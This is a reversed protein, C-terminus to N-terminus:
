HADILVKKHSEKPPPLESISTKGGHDIVGIEYTRSVYPEIMAAIEDTLETDTCLMIVQDGANPLYTGMLAERHLSDLRSLPTDIIMPLERGSTKGLAWLMSIAYLQREGASLETTDIHKGAKSVLRIAFSNPDIDVAKILRKRRVLGNFAEVFYSSLSKLRTQLIKQEYQVLALQTRSALDARNKASDNEFQADRATVRKADLRKVVERLREADANAQALETEVVGMEFEAKKLKDFTKAAAGPRFNKAQEKLLLRKQWLSQLNASLSAAKVRCDSITELQELVWDPDSSLELADDSGATATVFKRLASFHQETWAPNKPAKISVTEQFATVFAGVSKEFHADKARQVESTFKKILKPALAFPASGNVLTRLENQEENLGKEIASIEANLTDRDIAITGGEQQFRHQALESAKAIQVRKTNLSAASEEQRVLDRKAIELDDLIDELDQAAGTEESRAKYLALDGRLQDIIDLGLLSRIAEFLGLSGQDDAIDQIKEGDFFFLQSVGAPILDELYHDWDERPIDTMEAGDRFLGPVEVIATGKASWERRIRYSEKQDSHQSDFELEVWAHREESHTHIRRLLHAEYDTQSVRPGLARKGYLALQIAELFTTKGSGNHGKILIVPKSSEKEPMLNFSHLGGYLGFNYLNLARIIM